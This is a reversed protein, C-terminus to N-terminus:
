LNSNGKHSPSGSLLTGCYINRIHFVEGFCEVGAFLVIQVSASLDNITRLADFYMDIALREKREATVIVQAQCIMRLDNSSKVLPQILKAGATTRCM